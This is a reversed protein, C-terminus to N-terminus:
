LLLLINPNPNTFCLVCQKTTDTSNYSFETDGIIYTKRSYLCVVNESQIEHLRYNLHTECDRFHLNGFHTPICIIFSCINCKRERNFKFSYFFFFFMFLYIHFIECMLFSVHVLFIVNEGAM